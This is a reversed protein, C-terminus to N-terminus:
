YLALTQNAMITSQGAFRFSIHFCFSHFIHLTQKSLDLYIKFLISILSYAMFGFLFRSLYRKRTCISSQNRQMFFANPLSPKYLHFVKIIVVICNGFSKVWAVDKPLFPKQFLCFQPFLFNWGKQFINRTSAEIWHYNVFHKIQVAIFM